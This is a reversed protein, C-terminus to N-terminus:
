KKKDEESLPQTAVEQKITLLFALDTPALKCVNEFTIPEPQGTANTYNWEKIRSALVRVKSVTNNKDADNLAELDAMLNEGVDLKVWSRDDEPDNATSPLYVQKINPTVSTTPLQPM